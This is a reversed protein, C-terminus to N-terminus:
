LKCPSNTCPTASSVPDHTPYSVGLPTRALASPKAKAAAAPPAADLGLAEELERDAEEGVQISHSDWVGGEESANVSLLSAKPKVPSLALSSRSFLKSPGDGRVVGRAKVSAQASAVAPQAGELAKEEEKLEEELFPRVRCFVRINGKLEM